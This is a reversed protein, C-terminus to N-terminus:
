HSENERLSPELYIKRVHKGAFLVDLELSRDPFHRSGHVTAGLHQITAAFRSHVLTLPFDHSVAIRHIKRTFISDVEVSSTRVRHEFDIVAHLENFLVADIESLHHITQREGPHVTLLLVLALFCSVLLLSVLYKKRITVLIFSTHHKSM